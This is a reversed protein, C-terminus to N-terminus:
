DAHHAERPALWRLEAATIISTVRGLLEAIVNARTHANPDKEYADLAQTLPDGFLVAREDASLASPKGDMSDTTNNRM